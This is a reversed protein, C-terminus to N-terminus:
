LMFQGSGFGSLVYMLASRAQEKDKQTMQFRLPQNKKHGVFLARTDGIVHKLVLECLPTVTVGFFWTKKRNWKDKFLLKAEETVPQKRSYCFCDLAWNTAVTSALKPQKQIEVVYCGKLDTKVHGHFCLVGEEYLLFICGNLLRTGSSRYVMRDSSEGAFKVMDFRFLLEILTQYIMSLLANIQHPKVGRHAKGQQPKFYIKELRQEHM